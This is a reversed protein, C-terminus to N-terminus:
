VELQAQQFTHVVVRKTLAVILKRCYDASSRIDGIPKSKYSTSQSSEKLLKYKLSIVRLIKKAKKALIPTPAVAGFAIKMDQVTERAMIVVETGGIAM